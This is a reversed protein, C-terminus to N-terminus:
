ELMFNVENNNKDPMNNANMKSKTKHNNNGKETDFSKDISCQKRIQRREIQKLLVATQQRQAM